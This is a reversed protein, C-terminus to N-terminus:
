LFIKGKKFRQSFSFIGAPIPSCRVEESHNHPFKGFVPSDSSLGIQFFLVFVIKSEATIANEVREM